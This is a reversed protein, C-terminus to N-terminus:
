GGGVIGCLENFENLVQSPTQGLMAKDSKLRVCKLRMHNIHKANNGEPLQQQIQMLWLCTHLRAATLAWINQRVPVVDPLVLAESMTASDIAPVNLLLQYWELPKKALRENILDLQADIKPHYDTMQFPHSPKFPHLPLGLRKSNLRNWFSQDLHSGLMNVIPYSMVFRHMREAGVTDVNRYKDENVWGLYQVVLLPINISIVAVGTQAIPYSGKILPMSFDNFPHRHVKIPSLNRWNRIAARHDFFETNNILIESVGSGYFVSQNQQLQTANTSVLGISNAIRDANQFLWEVHSDFLVVPRNICLSLIRVLMHQNQISFSNKSYYQRIKDLDTKLIGRYYELWPYTVVGGNALPPENFLDYM